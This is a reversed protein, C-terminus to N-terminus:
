LYPDIHKREFSANMKKCPFDVKYEQGDCTVYLRNRIKILAIILPFIRKLSIIAYESCSPICLCRKRTEDKAYHQYCKVAQILCYRFYIEVTLLIVFFAVLLKLVFAIQLITYLYIACFIFLPVFALLLALYWKLTTPRKRARKLVIQELMKQRKYEKRCFEIESQINQM